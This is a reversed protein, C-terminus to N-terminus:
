PGGIAAGVFGGAHKLPELSSRTDNARALHFGGVTAGCLLVVGIAFRLGTKHPAEEHDDYDDEDIGRQALVLVAGVLLAIPVLVKGKGLALAAGTDIGRGVPGVGASFIALLSLVGAVALAIALMDARHDGLQTALEERLHSRVRAPRKKARSSKSTRRSAM